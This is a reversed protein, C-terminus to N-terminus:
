AEYLVGKELLFNTAHCWNANGWDELAAWGELARISDELEEDEWKQAGFRNWGWPKKFERWAHVTWDYSSEIWNRGQQYFDVLKNWRRRDKSVKLMTM